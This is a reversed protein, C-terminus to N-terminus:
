GLRPLPIAFVRFQPQPNSWKFGEARSLRAVHIQGGFLSCIAPDITKAQADSQARLMLNASEVAESLTIDESKEPHALRYVSFRPDDTYNLVDAVLKSGYGISGGPLIPFAVVMPPKLKQDVHFFRTQTWCPIQDYYGALFLRAITYGKEGEYTFGVSEPYRAVLDKAAAVSMAKELRQKLWFALERSYKELGDPKRTAMFEVAKRTESVFDFVICKEAEDPIVVAGALAYGLCRKPEEIPFVKQAEDNVVAGNDKCQRGDAGFAFGDNTYMIFIATPM